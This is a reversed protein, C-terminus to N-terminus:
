NEVAASRVFQIAESVAQRTDLESAEYLAKAVEDFGKVSM